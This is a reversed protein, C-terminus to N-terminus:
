KKLFSSNKSYFSEIMLLVLSLIILIHWLEKGRRAEDVVKIQNEDFNVIKIKNADFIKLLDSKLIRKSPDETFSLKTIFSNYFKNDIFIKYIGLINLDSLVLRENEFDPKLKSQLGNPNELIIEKSLNQRLLPIFLSDGMEVSLENYDINNLYILIRHILPVFIGKLPLDTWELNMLSTFIITKNNDKNIELLFPDGNSLTLLEDFQEINNLTKYNKIKPMESILNKVPFDKFIPNKFNIKDIIFFDNENSKNKDFPTQINLDELLNTNSNGLFILISGGLQHYDKVINLQNKNFNGPNYFVVLDKDYIRDYGFSDYLHNEVQIYNRSQNISSMVHKIPGSFEDKGHFFLIEIKKSIRYQFFNKNDFKFNDDPIKFFGNVIEENEAFAKFEFNKIIQPKINSVLQGSKINNLFLEVTLEEIKSNSSNKINTEISLLQNPLKIVSNVNAKDIRINEQFNDSLFLFTRWELLNIKSNNLNKNSFDSFVYLEKSQMDNLTKNIKNSVKISKNIANYINDKGGSIKIKNFIESIRGKNLIRGSSIRKFPTTQYVDLFFDDNLQNLINIANKKSYEFLSIEDLKYAMSASNDFLIAIHIFKNSSNSIPFYGSMVPRSFALILLILILTRIILLIIEKIKFYNIKNTEMKKLFQISSFDITKTNMKNFLHIIFPILAFILGWLINPSLFSM